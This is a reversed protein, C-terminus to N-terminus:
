FLIIILVVLIFSFSMQPIKPAASIEPSVLDPYKNLFHMIVGNSWGFGEQVEYEGGGGPLGIQEVDYKEFMKQGSQVYSAYVNKVWNDVLDRALEKARSDQVNELGTVILEQLPAWANSFDWQQGSKKMSTPVGGPYHFANTLDIYKILRDIRSELYCNAWLPAVNSPYFQVNQEEQLLKYDFYAGENDNWLVSDIAVKFDNALKSYEDAKSQDKLVKHFKEMIQANNCLYSNLEVPVIHRTKVDILEESESGDDKFFWKTSYDWGSEAGSKMNQYFETQLEPTSFHQADKFDEYYSEPRPDDVEVNYRGLTHQKGSKEVVTTRNAMWYRFEKDLYEINNHLFDEDKTAEYYLNAMAIYLPPQTRRNYYIRNGNPIHGVKGILEAFNELMGKVTADMESVILGQITWYSDWYYMERFRGGPVVFPHQLPILSYKEPTERVNSKIQRGLAKWRLHLDQAFKKYRPDRIKQLLTINSKWDKPVWEEFESGEEDFNDNVFKLVEEKSPKNGSNKMLADFNNLVEDPTTKIAKDVFTKSDKYLRAMQVTHLLTNEGGKCYVESDCPPPLKGFALNILCCFFLGIRWIMEQINQSKTDNELSKQTKTSRVSCSYSQQPFRM